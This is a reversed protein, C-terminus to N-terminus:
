FRRAQNQPALTEGATKEEVYDFECVVPPVSAGCQWAGNAAVLNAKGCGLKRCGRLGIGPVAISYNQIYGANCCLEQM